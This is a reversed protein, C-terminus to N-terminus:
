DRALTKVQKALKEIQEAKQIMPLSLVQSTETKEVQDKLEVALAYLKEVDERIQSQNRKLTVKPDALTPPSMSTDPSVGPAPVQPMPNQPTRAQAFAFHRAAFLGAPLALVSAALKVVLNRKQFDVM